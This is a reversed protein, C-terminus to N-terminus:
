REVDCDLSFHPMTNVFFVVYTKGYPDEYGCAVICESWLHMPDTSINPLGRGHGPLTRRAGKSGYLSDKEYHGLGM